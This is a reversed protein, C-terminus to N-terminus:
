RSVSFALTVVFETVSISAGHWQAIRATNGNGAEDNAGENAGAALM